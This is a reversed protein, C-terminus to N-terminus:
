QQYCQHQHRFTNTAFKLHQRRIRGNRDRIDVKKWMIAPCCCEFFTVVMSIWSGLYAECVILFPSWIHKCCQHCLPSSMGVLDIVNPALYTQWPNQHPSPIGAVSWFKWIRKRFLVFVESPLLAGHFQSSNPGIPNSWINHKKDLFRTGM